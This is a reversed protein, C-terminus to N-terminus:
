QGESPTIEAPAPAVPAEATGSDTATPASSDVAADSPQPATSEYSPVAPADSPATMVDTAPVSNVEAPAPQAPTDSHTLADGTTEGTMGNVPSSEPTAAEEPTKLVVAVILVAIIAIILYLVNKNM